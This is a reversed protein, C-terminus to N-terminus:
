YFGTQGHSFYTYSSFQVMAHVYHQPVYLLPCLNWWNESMENEDYMAMWALISCIEHAQPGM